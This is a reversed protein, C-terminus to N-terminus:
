KKSTAKLEAVKKITANALDQMPQRALVKAHASAVEKAADPAQQSTLKALAVPLTTGSSTTIANKVEDYHSRRETLYTELSAAYAQLGKSESQKLPTIVTQCDKRITDFNAIMEPTLTLLTTAKKYCDSALLDTLASRDKIYGNVDAIYQKNQSVFDQYKKQLEGSQLAEINSLKSVASQYDTLKTSVTNQQNSAPPTTISFTYYANELETYTKRVKETATQATQYDALSVTRTDQIQRFGLFAAGTAIFIAITSIAARKVPKKV